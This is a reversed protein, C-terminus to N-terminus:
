IVGKDKLAALAAEDLGLQGGLIDENHQGKRGGGHRIQAPTKSMYPFANTMKIKGLDEDELEIIDGRAQYQPDEFIQAINYAPGIAAEAEEFKQLVDDLDRERVWDAVIGDVEEM